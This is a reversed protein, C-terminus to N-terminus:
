LITKAVPSDKTVVTYGDINQGARLSFDGALYVNVKRNNSEITHQKGIPSKPSVETSSHTKLIYDLKELEAILVAEKAKANDRPSNDHWTESSEGLTQKFEGALGRLEQRVEKIRVKILEADEKLIEKM